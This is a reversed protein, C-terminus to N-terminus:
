VCQLKYKEIMIYGIAALFSLATIGFGLKRGPLRYIIEITEEGNTEFSIFGGFVERAVVPKGDATIEFAGSYPITLLITGTEGNNAITIRSGKMDVELEKLLQKAASLSTKNERCLAFDSIILENDSSINIINHGSSCKLKMVRRTTMDLCSEPESGNLSMEAVQFIPIDFWIYLNEDKQLDFEIQMEHKKLASKAPISDFIHMNRGCIAEYAAELREFPNGNLDYPLEGVVYFAMSLANENKYLDTTQGEVLLDYDTDDALLYKIGLLCDAASTTGERYNVWVNTSTFGFGSLLNIIKKSNASSYHSVGKYGLMLSDNLTLAGTNEVRYTGPDIKGLEQLMSDVKSINNEIKPALADTTWINTLRNFTTYASFTIEIITFVCLLTSKRIYLALAFLVIAVVNIIVFFVTFRSSDGLSLMALISVIIVPFSWKEYTNKVESAASILTFIILFSYRCIFWTPANFAHWVLDASPIMTSMVLVFLVIGYSVRRRVSISKDAFFMVALILVGVGCYVMPFTGPLDSGHESGIFLMSISGSDIRFSNVALLVINAGVSIASLIGFLVSSKSGSSKHKACLFLMLTSLILTLVLFILPIYNELKPPASKSDKLTFILPIIVIGSIGGSLLSSVAFRASLLAIKCPERQESFVNAAFWLVCFLCVMYGIYYNFIITAALSAIYLVSSRNSVLNEIGLAILPLMIIADLWMINIAYITVYGNLSWALSLALATLISSCKRKLYVASTMASASLKFAIILSVVQSIGSKNFLLVLFNFPSLLYYAWLGFSGLGLSMEPAFAISGGREFMDKFHGLFASYQSYMDSVMFSREGFPIIGILIYITLIVFFSLAFAFLPSLCKLRANRSKTTEM